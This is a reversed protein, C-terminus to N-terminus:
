SRPISLTIKSGKHPTSEVVIDGDIDEVFCKADYMGIGMGANSKTTDFLRFLREKVFAESMGVGNDSVSIRVYSDDAECYISVLPSSKGRCAHQANDILNKLISKLRDEDVNLVADKASPDITCSPPIPHEKLEPARGISEVLVGALVSSTRSIEGQKNTLKRLMTHMRKQMSAMTVFADKVFDPNDAHEIANKNLMELQAYVNKLDHIVFASTQHFATMQAHESLEKQKIQAHIYSDIQQALANMFDRMEWNLTWSQQFENGLLILTTVKTHQRAPIIWKVGSENLANASQTIMPYLSPERVMQEVDIIWGADQTQEAIRALESLAVNSIFMKEECLPTIRNNRRVRYVAGSESMFANLMVNLGQKAAEEPSLEPDWKKTMTLWTKRYDFQDEFFHKNVWVWMVRRMRKSVLMYIVPIVAVAAIILQFHLALGIDLFDVFYAFIGITVLYAGVSMFLFSQFAIPRSLSVKVPVSQLLNIGRYIFPATALLAAAQYDVLVSFPVGEIIHAVYAIIDVMGVVSIAVILYRNRKSQSGGVQYLREVFMLLTLSMFIGGFGVLLNNTQEAFLSAAGLMSLLVGINSTAILLIPTNIHKRLYVYFFSSLAILKIVNMAAIWFERQELIVLPGDLLMLTAAGASWTLFSFLLGHGVFPTHNSSIRLLFVGYFLAMVSVVSLYFVHPASM